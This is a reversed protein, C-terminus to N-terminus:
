CIKEIDRIEYKDGWTEKARKVVLSEDSVSTAGKFVFVGDLYCSYRFWM